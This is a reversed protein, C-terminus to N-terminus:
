HGSVQTFFLIRKAVDWGHKYAFLTAQVTGTALQFEILRTFPHAQM